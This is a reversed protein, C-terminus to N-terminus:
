RKPRKAACLPPNDFAAEQAKRDAEKSFVVALREAMAVHPVEQAGAFSLCITAARSAQLPVTGSGSYRKLLEGTKMQKCAFSKVPGWGNAWGM